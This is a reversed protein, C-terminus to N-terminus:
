VMTFKLEDEEIEMYSVNFDITAKNSSFDALFEDYSTSDENNTKLLAVMKIFVDKKNLPHYFTEKSYPLRLSPYKSEKLESHLFNLDELCLNVGGRTNSFKDLTLFDFLTRGVSPDRMLDALFLRNIQGNTFYESMSIPNYYVKEFSKLRTAFSFFPNYASFVMLKSASIDDIEDFPSFYKNKYGKMCNEFYITPSAKHDINAEHMKKGFNRAEISLYEPLKPTEPSEESDGKKISPIVQQEEESLASAELIAGTQILESSSSIRANNLTLGETETETVTETETESTSSSACCCFLRSIMSM